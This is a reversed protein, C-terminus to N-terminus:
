TYMAALIEGIQSELRRKTRTADPITIRSQISPPFTIGTLFPPYYQDASRAARILEAVLRCAAPMAQREIVREGFRVAVMGGEILKFHLESTSARAKAPAALFVWPQQVRSEAIHCEVGRGGSVSELYSINAAMSFPADAQPVSWADCQADHDILLFVVGHRRDGGSNGSSIQFLNEKDSASRSVIERFFEGLFDDPLKRFAFAGGGRGVSLIIEEATAAGFAHGGRVVLYRSQDRFIGAAGSFGTRIAQAIDATDPGGPIDCLVELGRRPEDSSIITEIAQSLAEPGRYTRYEIVDWSTRTLITARRTLLDKASPQEVVLLHRDPRSARDLDENMAVSELLSSIGAVLDPIKRPFLDTPYGRIETRDPNYLRNKVAFAILPIATPAAKIAHLKGFDPRGVFRDLSLIWDDSDSRVFSISAEGRSPVDAFTLNEVVNGAHGKGRLLIKKTLTRLRGPDITRSAPDESIQRVSSQLYRAISDSFRIRENFPWDFFLDLKEMDIARGIIQFRSGELMKRRRALREKSSEEAVMKLYLVSKLFTHDEEAGIARFWDHLYELLILYPDPADGKRVREAYLEAPLKDDSKATLKRLLAVKLASKFPKQIAKELQQLCASLYQESALRPIPGFDITTAPDPTESWHAPSLGAVYVATRLFEEKLIPGFEGAKEKDYSFTAKQIEALDHIYFHIELDATDAAWKEIARMKQETRDRDHATMAGAPYILWFDIDSESTFSVSGVSGMAYLGVFSSHRPPPVGRRLQEFFEAAPEFPETTWYPRVFGHPEDGATDGLRVANSHILAPLATFVKWRRATLAERLADLKMQNHAAFLNM